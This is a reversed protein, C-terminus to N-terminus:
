QVATPYQPQMQQSKLQQVQQDTQTQRQQDNNILRTLLSMISRVTSIDTPDNADTIFAHLNQMAVILPKTGGPNIGPQTVDEPMQTEEAGMAGGPMQQPAQPQGGQMAQLAQPPVGMPMGAPGGVGQPAQGGVIQEFPNQDFNFGPM